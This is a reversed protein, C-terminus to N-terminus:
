IMYSIRTLDAEFRVLLITFSVFNSERKTDVKHSDISGRIACAGCNQAGTWLGTQPTTGAFPM